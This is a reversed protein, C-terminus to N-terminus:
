FAKALQQYLSRVEKSLKQVEALREQSSLRDINQRLDRMTMKMQSVAARLGATAKHQEQLTLTQQYVDLIRLRSSIPSASEARLQDTFVPQDKLREQIYASYVRDSYVVLADALAGVAEEHSLADVIADHQSKAIISRTIFKLLSSVAGIKEQPIDKFERLKAALADYNDDVSSAVGDAALASLQGAYDSLAKSMEKATAMQDTIPKCTDSAENIAGEPDFGKLPKDTTYIRRQLFQQKCHEVAQNIVPDFAVSIKKTEDAFERVPKLNTTCGTLLLVPMLGLYLLRM